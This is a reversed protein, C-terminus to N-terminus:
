IKSTIRIRDGSDLGYEGQRVYSTQSQKKELEPLEIKAISCSRSHQTFSICMNVAVHQSNSM